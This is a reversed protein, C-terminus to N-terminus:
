SLIRELFAGAAPISQALGGVHGGSPLALELREGTLALEAAFWLTLPPPVVQDDLGQVLMVPRDVGAASVGLYDTLAQPVPTGALPLAFMDGVPLANARPKFDALPTSDAADVLTRGAPTLYRDLDLDPRSERLGAATYALYLTLGDLRVDPFDPGALGALRDLNTPAGSAFTGRFDLDPALADARTATALAAHGGQSQGAVAWRSSAAPYLQRAARVSDVVNSAAVDANLYPHVGPTGLGAYDTAVVLFGRRLWDGFLDRYLQHNVGTRSPADGDAMGVTGHAWAVIPWGGRPPVGDPEFILGGSLGDAGSTRYTFRRVEAAGPVAAAPGAPASAVVPGPTPDAGASGAGSGATIVLAAALATAARRAATPM